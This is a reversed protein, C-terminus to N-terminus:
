RIEIGLPIASHNGFAGSMGMGTCARTMVFASRAFVRVSFHPMGFPLAFMWAAHWVHVM